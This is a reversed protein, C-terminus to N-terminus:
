LREREVLGLKIRVGRAGGGVWEFFGGLFFCVSDPGLNLPRSVIVHCRVSGYLLLM